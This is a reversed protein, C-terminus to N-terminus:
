RLKSPKTYFLYADGNLICSPVHCRLYAYFRGLPRPSLSRGLQRPSLALLISGITTAVAGFLNASHGHRCRWVSISQFTTAVAGFLSLSIFRIASIPLPRLNSVRHCRYFIALLPWGLLANQLPVVHGVPM